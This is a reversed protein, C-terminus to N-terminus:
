FLGEVVGHADLHIREAAPERPLGPMRLVDGCIMVVFGAGASLVCDRVPVIHGSPAGLLKPDASFSSQTKAV